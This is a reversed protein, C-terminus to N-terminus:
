RKDRGSAPRRTIWKDKSLTYLNQGSDLMNLREMVARSRLNNVATFAYVQTLHLQEFAVELAAQAAETAYGCGWYKKALRWGIEVCPTFPLEPSPEHLGVFGIFQQIKKIEVAWFGWGREAILAHIKNAMQNSERDRLTRPFYEMVEPDANIAAFLPWDEKKWQRLKLRITEMEIIATM